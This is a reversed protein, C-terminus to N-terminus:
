DALAYRADSALNDLFEDRVECVQDDDEIHDYRFLLM